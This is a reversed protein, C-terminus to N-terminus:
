RGRYIQGFSNDFLLTFKERFAPTGILEKELQDGKRVLVWEVMADPDQRAKDWAVPSSETIYRSLDLQVEFMIQDIQGHSQALILGEDYHTEFWATFSNVEAEYTPDLRQIVVTNGLIDSWTSVSVTVVVALIALSLLKSHASVWSFSVRGCQAALYGVGLAILPLAVTGYRLGSSTFPNDRMLMGSQGTFLSVIFFVPIGLMYAPTVLKERQVLVLLLFLAIGVVGGYFVIDETNWRVATFYQQLTVPLNHIAPLDKGAVDQQRASYPGTAFYLPDKYLQWEWFVMWVTMASITPFYLTVLRAFWESGRSHKWIAMGTIPVSFLTVFWLEYHVTISFGLALSALVFKSWSLPNRELQILTLTCLSMSLMILPEAMPTVGLYIANVNLLFVAAASTGGVVGAFRTPAVEKVILYLCVGTGAFSIMSWMSGSFGSHYLPDIWVTLADLASQAPLWVGGLQALSFKGSPNDFMRRAINLKATGDNLDNVMGAKYFLLYFYGIVALAAFGVIYAFSRDFRGERPSGTAQSSRRNYLHGLLGSEGTFIQGVVFLVGVGAGLLMLSTNEHRGSELVQDWRWWGPIAQGLILYAAVGIASIGGLALTTGIFTALRQWGNTSHTREATTTLTM